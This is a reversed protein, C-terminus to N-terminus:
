SKSLKPTHAAITISRVCVDSVVEQVFNPPTFMAPALKPEPSKGRCRRRARSNSLRRPLRATAGNGRQIADSVCQGFEGVAFEVRQDDGDVVARLERRAQKSPDLVSAVPLLVAPRPM